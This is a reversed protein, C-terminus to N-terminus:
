FTYKMEIRNKDKKDLGANDSSDSTIFGSIKFNKSMAYALKLRTESFKVDGPVSGDIDSTTGYDLGATVGGGLPASVGLYLASTDKLATASFSEMAFNAKADGDGLTVDAGEKGAKVYGATITAAGVKGSVVLRTQKPDALTDGATGTYNVTAHNLEVSMPGINASLNVNIANAGAKPASGHNQSVKAYWLSYNLMDASGIAAVAAINNGTLASDTASSIDYTAANKLVGRAKADSNTFWGAALTFTKALPKVVVVGTGQQSDVAGDAFPTPLGQKGAIITAGGANIIFNAERLNIVTPDGDGSANTTADGQVSSALKATVMDNVKSKVILDLRYQNAEKQVEGNTYRYRVQGSIDVGKIANELSVASATTTFGAVAVAAVLSMKIMKTM